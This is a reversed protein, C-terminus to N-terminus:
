QQKNNTKNNNYVAWFQKFHATMYIKLLFLFLCIPGRLELGPFLALNGAQYWAFTTRIEPPRCYWLVLRSISFASKKLGLLHSWKFPGGPGNLSMRGLELCFGYSIFPRKFLWAKHQSPSWLRYSIDQITGLLWSTVLAPQLATTACPPITTHGGWAM